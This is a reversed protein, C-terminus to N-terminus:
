RWSAIMPERLRQRFFAPPQLVAGRGPKVSSPCAAMSSDWNPALLTALKGTTQIRAQPRHGPAGIQSDRPDSRSLKPAAEQGARYPRSLRSGRNAVNLHSGNPCAPRRTRPPSTDLDASSHGVAGTSFYGIRPRAAGTSFHAVQRNAVPRPPAAPLRQASTTSPLPIDEDRVRRGAVSRSSVASGGNSIGAPRRSRTSRKHSTRVVGWRAFYDASVVGGVQDSRARQRLASSGGPGLVAVGPGFASAVVM